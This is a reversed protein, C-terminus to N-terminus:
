RNRDHLGDGDGDDVGARQDPLPQGLHQTALGVHAHGAEVRRQGRHALRRGLLGADHDAVEGGCPGVGRRRLPRCPQEDEVHRVLIAGIM